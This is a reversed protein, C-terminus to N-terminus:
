HYFFSSLFISVVFWLLLGYVFFIDFECLSTLSTLAKRWTFWFVIASVFILRILQRSLEDICVFFTVFYKRLWSIILSLLPSPLRSWLRARDPSHVLAIECWIMLYESASHWRYCRYFSLMFSFTNEDQMWWLVFHRAASHIAWNCANWECESSYMMTKNSDWGCKMIQHIYSSFDGSHHLWAEAEAFLVEHNGQMISIGSAKSNLQCRMRAIRNRWSVILPHKEYLLKGSAILM